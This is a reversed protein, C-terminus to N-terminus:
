GREGGLQLYTGFLYLQNKSDYHLPTSKLLGYCQLPEIKKKKKILKIYCHRGIFFAISNVRVRASSIDCHEGGFTVIKQFGIKTKKGGFLLRAPINQVFDKVQASMENKEVIVILIILSGRRCYQSFTNHTECVFTKKNKLIRTNLVKLFLIKM